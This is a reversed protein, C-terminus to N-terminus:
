INFVEIWKKNYSGIVTAGTIKAIFGHSSLISVENTRNVIQVANMGSKLLLISKWTPLLRKIATSRAIYEFKNGPYSM